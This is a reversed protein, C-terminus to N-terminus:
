FNVFKNNKCGNSTHMGVNDISVNKKLHRYNTMKKFAPLVNGNKSSLLNKLTAVCELM